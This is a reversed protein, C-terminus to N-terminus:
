GMELQQRVKHYLTAINRVDQALAFWIGQKPNELVIWQTGDSKIFDGVIKGVWPAGHESKTWVEIGRTFM